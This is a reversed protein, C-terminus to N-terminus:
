PHLSDWEAPRNKTGGDYPVALGNDLMWKNIHLDDLYVDALIRGYKEKSMNKLHVMQGFILEYLKDRAHIAIKKENATKGKIEASDIGSLRVSFRYIPTECNPLKSAITITDGDYVKVVKGVMVPPVFQVTDKYEINKLYDSKSVIELAIQRDTVCDDRNKPSFCQKYRGCCFASVSRMSPLSVLLFLRNLHM